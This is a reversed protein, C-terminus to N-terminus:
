KIFFKIKKNQMATDSKEYGSFYTPTWLAPRSLAKGLGATLGPSCLQGAQGWTGLQPPFTSRQVRQSSGPSLEEGAPVPLLLWWSVQKVCGGPAASSSSSNEQELM